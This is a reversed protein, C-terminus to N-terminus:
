KPRDSRVKEVDFREDDTDDKRRPDQEVRRSSRDPTARM